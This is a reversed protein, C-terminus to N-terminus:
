VIRVEEGFGGREGEGRAFHGSEVYFTIEAIKDGKGFNRIPSSIYLQQSACGHQSKVASFYLTM